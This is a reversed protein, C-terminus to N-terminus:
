VAAGVTLGDRRVAQTVKGDALYRLVWELPGYRSVRQCQHSIVVQTLWIGTAVLAGWL